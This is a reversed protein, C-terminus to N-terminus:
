RPKYHVCHTTSIVIFFLRITELNPHGSGFVSPHQSLQFFSLFRLCCAIPKKAKRLQLLMSIFKPLNTGYKPHGSEFLCISWDAHIIENYNVFITHVVITFHMWM